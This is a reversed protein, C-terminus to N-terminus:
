QFLTEMEEELSNLYGKVRKRKEVNEKKLVSSLLKAKKLCSDRWKKKNLRGNRRINMKTLFPTIYLVSSFCGVMPNEQFGYEKVPLGEM